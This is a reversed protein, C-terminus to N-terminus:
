RKIRLVRYSAPVMPVGFVTSEGDVTGAFTEHNLMDTLAAPKGIAALEATHNEPQGAQIIVTDNDYVFLRDKCTSKLFIGTDAVCIGRIKDLVPSPLRYLDGFNQPIALIWLKGNIVADELLIPFSNNSSMAVIRPFCDNTHYNLKPFLVPPQQPTYTDFSCILMNMAFRDASVTGSLVRVNCLSDFGRDQIAELLGSTIIVDNGDALSRRIKEIIKEDKAASQTLLLTKAETPYEGFPELPIGATGLFTHLYDEGSSHFPKYCALGKPNGIHPMLADFEKMVFGALPVFIADQYLLRSLCFLTVEKGKAFLTNLIQSIYDELKNRCDFPDLWGGGNRGGSINDLWRMLFYGLYKQTNQQTFTEDRTEVGTYVMDFVKPENEPDYGSMHYNEYWNPYKIIVKVKPNTEMATKMVINESVDNLQARRFEEWSQEGKAAVCSDCKCNTFYFDDLIIEDFLSATKRVVKELLERDKKDSYCLSVFRGRKGFGTTTIAGSTAVGKKQFLEKVFAMKEDSIILEELDTIGEKYFGRYTELYVKSYDIHADLHSLRDRTEQSDALSEVCRLTCFVAANFNNYAM